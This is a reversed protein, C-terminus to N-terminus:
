MDEIRRAMQRLVEDGASVGITASIRDFGDLSISLLALSEGYRKSKKLAWEFHELFMERKPLNTLPDFYALQDLYAKAALTNRVRLCLESQDVPKALFDTAGLDLVRLKSETDTSSTLVIVPLHNLKPHQRVASLIEFGSVEPMVLDLLLIDPIEKELVGMAEPSKDVLVFQSYGVEELFAQVVEMTIPEDDVIMITANTMHPQKAKPAPQCEGIKHLTEM